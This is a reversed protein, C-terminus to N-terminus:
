REDVLGGLARYDEFFAPYSKAVCEAGRITVPGASRTAAVAAMMAIRHDNAADVVGGSLEDVGDLVIDDGESWVHAGLASLGACVTEVRDSEKLRLRGCGTLRTRGPALAAVAALPPVLDPFDSVDMETGSPSGPSTVAEGGRREVRAGLKALAAMVARDGQRSMLDLGSVAVEGALAGAALWFAANSWDGEVEVEGPSRLPTAPSVVFSTCPRGDAVEHSVMVEVGFRALAALTLEVYPRSEIPETVRVESPGALLPVALLLGSVYQSSVNGPLEFRGARLRGGVRLPFRGAESLDAGGALLEEYLPSLPREALRGHGTLAADCALAAAVPLMFRLTSGSEGCDLTAGRLAVRLNDTAPSGPLPTVLLWEGEREVLAGLAELCSATAEIDRSTTACRIRTPGPCLAACILLRHAMSKSAVARVSGRLARPAITVDM